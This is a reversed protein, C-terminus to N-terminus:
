WMADFGCDPVSQMCCFVWCWENALSFWIVSISCSQFNSRFSFPFWVDIPCYILFHTGSVLHEPSDLFVHSAIQLSKLMQEVATRTPHQFTQKHQKLSWFIMWQPLCFTSNTYTCTFVPCATPMMLSPQIQTSFICTESAQCATHQVQLSFNPLSKEM